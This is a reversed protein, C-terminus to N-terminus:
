NDARSRIYAWLKDLDDQSLIGKWAPMQGKGSMVSADFRPREGATLSKLDFAAGTNVLRAGHCEACHTAYLAAGADALAQEQAGARPALALLAAGALPVMRM